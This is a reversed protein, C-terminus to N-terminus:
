RISEHRGPASSPYQHLVSPRHMTLLSNQLEKGMDFEESHMMGTYAVLILRHFYSRPLVTKGIAKGVCSYVDACVLEIWSNIDLPDPGVFLKAREAITESFVLVSVLLQLISRSVQLRQALNPNFSHTLSYTLLRTLSHTLLYTLLHTLSHTLSHTLLTLSYTFSHTLSHTLPHTLSHTLLHTLLHTLSHTLSRYLRYLM